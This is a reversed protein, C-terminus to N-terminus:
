NDIEIELIPEDIPAGAPVMPLVNIDRDIVCNILVPAHAALAKELTPRIESAKTINYAEIGYAGALKVYDVGRDLTTQSFRKNYFLRQWQRVMGLVENNLVLEIMPIQDKAMTVLENCNMQFSGDGAINVVQKDPCGVQAGMAAGLGFGMTGLGGSSVFQHPRRLKYYQAAWMQNQGVETTIIADGNTLECLTEIVEQPTVADEDKGKQINPFEENWAQIQAMWEPHPTPTLRQNLLEVVQRVDGILINDAKINKNIEAPDIDIQLIQANPAFRSIKLIVRDSFRTGIALFLDCDTVAKAATVSGHMGMMGIYRSDFNDFGGQGMLSSSVPADMLEALKKVALNAEESAVVGGGTYILPRKANSILEVANALAKESPDSYVQEIPEPQKREYEYIAATVDKPIDVLVPVKRGTNAIKFARRITPAIDEVKKVIFNHKTVPMTVGTIDVEQFSDLGLQPVPVNGSIVVLPISDMYATAIGTVTNTAGPGSTVLAVGTKGTARAYGDAAHTAGQEHATLIHRIKDQYDYLADYINLVSGGPYGFITDVNQELLCELIIQSGTLKM